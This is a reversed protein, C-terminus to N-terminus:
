RSRYGLVRKGHSLLRHPGWARRDNSGSMLEGRPTRDCDAQDGEDQHEGPAKGIGLAVDTRAGQMDRDNLLAGQAQDQLRRVRDM